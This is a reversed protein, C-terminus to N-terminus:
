EMDEMGEPDSDPAEKSESFDIMFDNELIMFRDFEYKTRASVDMKGRELNLELIKDAMMKELESIRKKILYRKKIIYRCSESIALKERLDFTGGRKLHGFQRKQEAVIKKLEDLEKPSIHLPETECTAHNHDIELQKIFKCLRIVAPKDKDEIIWFMFEIFINLVESSDCPKNEDKLERFKDQLERMLEAAKELNKEKKTCDEKQKDRFLKDGNDHFLDLLQDITEFKWIWDPNLDSKEVEHLYLKEMCHCILSNVCVARIKSCPKVACNKFRPQTITDLQPCISQKCEWWVIIDDPSPVWTKSEKDDQVGVPCSEEVMRYNLTSYGGKKYNSKMKFLEKLLEMGGSTVQEGRAFNRFQVDNTALFVFLTPNVDQLYKAYGLIQKDYGTEGTRIMNRIKNDEGQYIADQFNDEIFKCNANNKNMMKKTQLEVLLAQALAVKTDPYTKMLKVIQDKSAIFVNTDLVVCFPSKSIKKPDTYIVTPNENGTNLLWCEVPPNSTIPIKVFTHGVNMNKFNQAPAM